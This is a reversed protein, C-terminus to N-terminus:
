MVSQIHGSSASSLGYRNFYDRNILALHSEYSASFRSSMDLDRSKKASLISISRDIVLTHLFDPLTMTGTESPTCIYELLGSRGSVPIPYLEYLRSTLHTYIRTTTSDQGLEGELYKLRNFVERNVKDWVMGYKGDSEEVTLSLFYVPASSIELYDLGSFTVLDNRRLGDMLADPVVRNAVDRISEVLISDVETNSWFSAVAEGLTWRVRTRLDTLTAM